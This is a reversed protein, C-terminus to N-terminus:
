SQEPADWTVKLAGRRPVRVQFGWVGPAIARIARRDLREDNWVAEIPRSPVALWVEGQAVRGLNLTFTAWGPENRWRVGEGGQSIHLTTGVVHAGPEVPRLSLLCGGHPPLAFSPRPEDPTLRLYTRNWFDIVHYDGQPDFDPIQAVPLARKVPEDTWNFLGILTWSGWHRAVPTIVQGPMEEEFLDLVEMREIKPPLLASAITQRESSLESLDDSLIPLGGSLGLLTAQTLVEDETLATQTQRVMLTDPDNIWWRNHMWARTAVNRLSNRLSPLSPNRQISCRLSAFHPGWEPDTDPGIRMADVLGVSPGIPAGCGVLFTEEGAAQRIIDLGQRYAQARTLGADHYQGPRAAAYLFDLKLYSYGWENVVTDVLHRVHDQVDPHTPDLIRGIFKFLLGASVLHGRRNRLLWDPHTRAITSRPHVTFPSLWLGPTFGSGEIRDALWPLPHPFRQNCDTWDGWTSEFGEDLQIVDLPLEHSLLAAMALNQMMDAESVDAGYIYWSCWGVPVPKRSPVGMQRAVAHAYTGLPDLQPLSVWELYFWESTGTEGAPLDVDDAQSQLILNRKRPRLDAGAQVFQDALSAGGMVLATDETVVAGVTESWFRGQRDRWPTAANHTMPGQLIRVPLM